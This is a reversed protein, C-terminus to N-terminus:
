YTLGYGYAYLPHASDHPLDEKQEQV